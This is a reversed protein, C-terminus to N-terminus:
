GKDRRRPARRNAEMLFNLLMNQLSFADQESDQKGFHSLVHLVRGGRLKEPRGTLSNKETAGGAPLFTVAVARQKNGGTRGLEDSEMLVTIGNGVIDIFPSDNDIKWSRQIGDGGTIHEEEKERTVTNGDRGDKGRGVVANPNVFVGRLLPHSTIGRGPTVPVSREKMMKGQRVHQPWARQLLDALGWDESFLYGGREVWQKLRQVAAASFLHNVVDHKDCGQCTTMRNTTTGGSPACSACVCHDFIQVCTNLVAVVGDLAEPKEDFEEKTMITHPINMQDLLDGIKDYNCNDRGPPHKKKGAIIVLVEGPKLRELAEVEDWRAADVDDVVTGTSRGSRERGKLGQARATAWWKSWNSALGCDAGTLVRLSRQMREALEDAKRENERLAEILVDVSEVYYLGALQDVSLLQLELDGRDLVRKHVRTVVLKNANNQLAYMLDRSLSKPKGTIQTALAELGEADQFLTAAGVLRWYVREMGPPTKKAYRILLGVAKKGGIDRLALAAKGVDEPSSAVMAKKLAKEAVDLEDAHAPVCTFIVSAAAAAVLWTTRSAM